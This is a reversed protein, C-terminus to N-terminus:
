FLTLIYSENVVSFDFEIIRKNISSRGFFCLLLILGGVNKLLLNNIYQLSSAKTAGVRQIELGDCNCAGRRSKSNWPTNAPRLNFRCNNNRRYHRRVSQRCLHRLSHGPPHSYGGSRQAVMLYQPLLTHPFAAADLHQSLSSASAHWKTGWAARSVTPTPAHSRSFLIIM